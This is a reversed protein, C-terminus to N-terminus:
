ISKGVKVSDDRYNHCAIFRVGEEAIEALLPRKIKCDNSVKDCRFAFLCGSENESQKVISSDVSSSKTDFLKDSRITSDGKASSEIGLSAEMLRQTYPHKPDSYIQDAPGLEVISGRYMVAIRDSIYRVMTLDHAIFLLSLGLSRKLSILMNVIQAQISLDLASVPEDCVVLKPNSILARAIAIRQRQGGSFEHPYRTLHEPLLGVKQIWSSVDQEVSQKGGINDGNNGGNHNGKDVHAKLRLPECLIDNVTMRPNLSSFPNQFIMQMREAQLVFEQDSRKSSLNEAQYRIEGATRELLGMILNGLTSKGSGSEGVLGLTENERIILSVDDVADLYQGKKLEFRKSLNKVELM